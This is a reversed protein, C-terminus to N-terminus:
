KKDKRSRFKTKGKPVINQNAISVAAIGIAGMFQAIGLYKAFVGYKKKTEWNNILQFRKLMVDPQLEFNIGANIQSGTYLTYLSPNNSYTPQLSNMPFFLLPSNIVNWDTKISNIKLVNFEELSDTGMQPLIFSTIFLFFSLTLKLKM